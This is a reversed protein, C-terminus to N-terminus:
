AVVELAPLQSGSRSLGGTLEIGFFNNISIENQTNHRLM